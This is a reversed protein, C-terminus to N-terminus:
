PFVKGRRSGNESLLNEKWGSTMSSGAIAKTGKSWFDKSNQPTSPGELKIGKPRELNERFRSGYKAFIYANKLNFNGPSFSTLDLFLHCFETQFKETSKLFRVLKAGESQTLASRIKLTTFNQNKSTILIKLVGQSGQGFSLFSSFGGSINLCTRPVFDRLIEGYAGKSSYLALM